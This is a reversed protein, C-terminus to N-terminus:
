IFNTQNKINLSFNQGYTVSQLKLRCVSRMVKMQTFSMCTHEKGPCRGLHKVDIQEQKM